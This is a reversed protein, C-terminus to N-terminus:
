FATDLIRKVHEYRFASEIEFDALRHKENLLKMKTFFKKYLVKLLNEFTVSPNSKKLSSGLASNHMNANTQM